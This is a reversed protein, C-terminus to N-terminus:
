QGTSSEMTYAAQLELQVAQMFLGAQRSIEAESVNQERLVAALATIETRWFVNAAEGHLGLLTEACRRVEAVRRHAPFQVLTM